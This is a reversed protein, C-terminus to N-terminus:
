THVGVEWERCVVVVIASSVVRLRREAVVPNSARNAFSRSLARSINLCVSEGNWERPAPTQANRSAARPMSTLLEGNEADTSGMHVHSTSLYAPSRAVAVFSSESASAPAFRCSPTALAAREEVRYGAPVSHSRTCDSATIRCPRV